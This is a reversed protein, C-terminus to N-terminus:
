LVYISFSITRGEANTWQANGGVFNKGDRSWNVSTERWETYPFYERIIAPIAQLAARWSYRETAIRCDGCFCAVRYVKLKM